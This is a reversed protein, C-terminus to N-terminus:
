GQVGCLQESRMAMASSLDLPSGQTALHGMHKDTDAKSQPVALRVEAAGTNVIEHHPRSISDSLSICNM